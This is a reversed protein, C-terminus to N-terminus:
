TLNERDESSEVLEDIKLGTLKQIYDLYNAQPRVRRTSGHTPQYLAYTRAYPSYTGRLTHGLFRFQHDYVTHILENRGGDQTKWLMRVKQSQVM